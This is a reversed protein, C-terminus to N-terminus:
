TQGLWTDLPVLEINEKRASDNKTIVTFKKDGPIVKQVWTFEDISVHEQYKVEIFQDGIFDIEKKGQWYCLPRANTNHLHSAVLGEILRGKFDPDKLRSQAMIHASEWGKGFDAFLHFLFPDFPYFKRNKRPAPLCTKPEAWPCTLLAYINELLFLYAEATSNSGIGCDRSLKTVSIPTCQHTILKNLMFSLQQTSHGQKHFAGEIWSAYVNYVYAPIVGLKLYENITWPFGGTLLFEDLKLKDKIQSYSVPLLEFDVPYRKGRRGPMLDAGQSIDLSSSGTCIVLSNQFLGSDAASKIAKWWLDVSTIEDFLLVSYDKKGKCFIEIEGLLAHHNDLREVDFLVVSDPAVGAHLSKDAFNRLFTSKGVQRPGRVLVIGPPKIEIQRALKGTHPLLCPQKAVEKLKPDNEKWHENTVWPQYKM